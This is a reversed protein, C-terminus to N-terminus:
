FGKLILEFRRDDAPTPLLGDRHLRECVARVCCGLLDDPWDLVVRLAENLAGHEIKVRHRRRILAILADRDDDGLVAVAEIVMMSTTWHPNKPKRAM